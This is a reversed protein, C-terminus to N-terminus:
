RVDQKPTGQMVPTTQSEHSDTILRGRFDDSHFSASSGMNIIGGSNEVSGGIAKGASGAYANGGFGKANSHGGTAGCASSTGGMGANNSNMNMLTPMGDNEALNAVSGGSVEGTNGSHANGGLTDLDSIRKKLRSGGRSIPMAHSDAEFNAM